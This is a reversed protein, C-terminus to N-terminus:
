MLYFTRSSNSSVIDQVSSPNGMMQHSMPLGHPSVCGLFRVPIDRVSRWPQVFLCIFSGETLGITRV